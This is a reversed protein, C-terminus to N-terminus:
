LSGLRKFITYSTKVDPPTTAWMWRFVGINEFSM